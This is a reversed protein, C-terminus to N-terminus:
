AKKAIKVFRTTVKLQSYRNSDVTFLCFYLIMSPIKERWYPPFDPPLFTGQDWERQEEELMDRCLQASRHVYTPWDELAERPFDGSIVPHMHTGDPLKLWPEWGLIAWGARELIDIATRTDDSMLVIEREALSKRQLDEPLLHIENVEDMPIEDM